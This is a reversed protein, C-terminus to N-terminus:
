CAHLTSEVPNLIRKPLDQRDKPALFRLRLVLLLVVRLLLGKPAPEAVRVAVVRVAVGFLMDWLELAAVFSVM